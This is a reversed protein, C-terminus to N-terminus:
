FKMGMTFLMHSSETQISAPNANTYIMYDEESIMNVMALDFFYQNINLGLGMTLYERSADNLEGVYPSGYYSYGARLSLQPHARWEAGLKLNYSNSYSSEITENANQYSYIESSLQAMSYDLYEYDVSLLARKNIVIALSNIAKFPTRLDYDNIGIYLSKLYYNDGNDFVTHMDSWYEENVNFYTPTHIAFGYRLWNELKYILGLKLNIGSGDISLTSRYDFSTLDSSPDEFNSERIHNEETYSITPFGITAGLFLKNKYATGFSLYIENIIGSRNSKFYQDKAHAGSAAGIYNTTSGITDTLYTDFALQEGFTDLNEYVKGQSQGVIYDIYSDTSQNASIEIDHDFNHLTNYGLAFNFRNWDGAEEPAFINASVRNINPLRINGTRSILSANDGSYYDTTTELNIFSLTTSNEGSSYVAIGAPNHSASSANGGLAGFAGGMSVFRATGWLSEQSFRLADIHNQAQLSLGIFLATVLSYIAKM